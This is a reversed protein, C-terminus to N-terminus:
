KKWFKLKGKMDKLGAVVKKAGDVVDDINIDDVKISLKKIASKMLAIIAKLLRKIQEAFQKILDGLRVIRCMEKIKDMASELDWVGLFSEITSNCDGTFGEVLALMDRCTDAEEKVNRFAEMSVIAASVVDSNDIAERSKELIAVNEEIDGPVTDKDSKGDEKENIDATVIEPLNHFGESVRKVMAVVKTSCDLVIDDMTTALEIAESIEGGQSLAQISKLSNMNFDGLDDLQDSISRSKEILLSSKKNADMVLTKTHTVIDLCDKICDKAFALAAWLTSLRTSMSEFLDVMFKILKGAAEALQKMFNSLKLCHWMDKVDAILKFTDKVDGESIARTYTQVEDSFGKMTTFMSYSLKAKASLHEFAQTGVTLATAINLHKLSDICTKIDDLDQDLTSLVERTREQEQQSKTDDQGAAKNIIDQIPKPVTEMTEDMITMMRVSKEVCKLAIDDMDKALAMSERLRDGDMLDKITELTEVDMKTTSFGQLTSTIESGFDIMEQGRTQTTQCLESTESALTYCEKGSDKLKSVTTYCKGAKVLDTGDKLLGTGADVIADAANEFADEVKDVANDYAHKVKDAAKKLREPM